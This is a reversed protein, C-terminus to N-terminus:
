ASGQFGSRAQHHPSKESTEKADRAKRVIAIIVLVLLLAITIRNLATLARFLTPSYEFEVRHKGTPLLVGTQWQNVRFASRKKGNVRVKWAPTFWENLVLLSTSDCEVTSYSRNPQDVIKFIHDQNPSPPQSNRLFAEVRKFDGPAVYAESLYNFGKAVVKVFAAQNNIPGAVSHVLTLRGMPSPNEYLRYGEIESIQKADPDLPSKGPGCLVYRAGMMARLHPVNALLMFRFQALPQPTLQNYFSKIAYYSGNM